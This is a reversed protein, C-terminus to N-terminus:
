PTSSTEPEPWRGDRVDRWDPLCALVEPLFQDLYEAVRQQAEAPDSVGVLAVEIKCYYAYEDRPDFGLERVENPSAFYKGNAMFFYVVNEQESGGEPLYTFLTAPIRIDPVLVDMALNSPVMPMYGGDAREIFKAPDLELTVTEKGVYGVGGALYCRDPVHPVTDPNGTYYAVHLRAIAGPKVQARGLDQPSKVAPYADADVYLRSIFNTTGLVEVVEKTMKDSQDEIMKWRGSVQPVMMVPLRTEVKKKILVVRTRAIVSEQGIWATLLLGAVVGATLPIRAEPRNLLMPLAVRGLLAVGVSTLVLAAVMTLMLVRHSLPQALGSGGFMWMGGYAAGLLLAMVIGAAVGKAIAIARQQATLNADSESAPRSSTGAPDSHILRSVWIWGTSYSAVAGLASEQKSQSSKPDSEDHLFIRNACWGILLILGAAPILMLLGVFTHFDGRAYEPNVLNLLGITTVRGVNVVIAVPVALGIMLVRQWWPRYTIFALATGLAIFAMLMRLGSCAEAVNMTESVLQGHKTFVLTLQNGSKEAEFDLILGLFQLAVHSVSAAINQMKWAIQEWLRNSIKVAFVLYAIPFWAVKMVHEGLLFLVLGFLSLIMSYGQLMDNRGPFIWWTYSLLGFCLIVLGWTNTKIPAALLRDRWLYLFYFSILPIVLAHSWDPNWSGGGMADALLQWPNDGEANTVIRFLRELYTLHLALFLGAIVVVWVWARTPVMSQPLDGRPADAVSRGDKADDDAISSFTTDAM